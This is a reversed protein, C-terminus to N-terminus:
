RESVPISMQSACELQWVSHCIIHFVLLAGGRIDRVEYAVHQPEVPQECVRCREGSGYGATITKAVMVPLQGGAILQRAMSRLDNEPIRLGYPM